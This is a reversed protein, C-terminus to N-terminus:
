IVGFAMMEGDRTSSFCGGGGFGFLGYGFFEEPIHKDSPLELLQSKLNPYFQLDITRFVSSQGFKIYSSPNTDSNSFSLDESNIRLGNITGEVVGRVFKVQIQWPPGPTVSSSTIM